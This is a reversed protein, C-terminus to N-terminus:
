KGNVLINKAYFNIGISFTIATGNFNTYNTPVFILKPNITFETMSAQSVIGYMSSEPYLLVYKKIRYEATIGCQVSTSSIKVLNNNKYDYDPHKVEFGGIGVFPTLRWKTNEFVNYGYFFGGQLFQTNRGAKWELEQFFTNVVKNGGVSINMGFSSKKFLYAMDFSFIGFGNAIYNSLSGTLFSYSVGASIQFGHKGSKIDVRSVDIQNKQLVDYSLRLLSDLVLTNTAIETMERLNLTENRYSSYINNMEIVAEYADSLNFLKGQLERRYIELHNLLLQAYNLTNKNRYQESVYSGSKEFYASAKLFTFVTDNSRLRESRYGMFHRLDFGLTHVNLKNGQFDKWTLPGDAWTKKNSIDNQAWLNLCNLLCLATILKRM